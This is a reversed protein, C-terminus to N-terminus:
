IAGGYPTSASQTSEYLAPSTTSSNRTASLLPTIYQGDSDTMTGESLSPKQPAAGGYPTCQELGNYLVVSTTESLEATATSYQAVATVAIELEKDMGDRGAIAQGVGEEEAWHGNIDKYGLLKSSPRQSAPKQLHWDFLCSLQP